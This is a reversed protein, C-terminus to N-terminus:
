FKISQIFIPTISNPIVVDTGGSINYNIVEVTNPAISTIEYTIFNHIFTDGVTQSYGISSIFVTMLILLRKKM